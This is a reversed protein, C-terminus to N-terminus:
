LQKTTKKATQKRKTAAQKPRKPARSRQPEQKKNQEYIDNLRNSILELLHSIFAVLILLGLLLLYM